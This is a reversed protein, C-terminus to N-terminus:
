AAAATVRARSKLAWANRLMALWIPQSIDHLGIALDAFRDVRGKMLGPRLVQVSGPPHGPEAGEVWLIIADGRSRVLAEISLIDHLHFGQDNKLVFIKEGDEMDEMLKRALYPLREEESLLLEDAAIAEPKIYTHYYMTYTADRGILGEDPHRPDIEIFHRGPAAIGEFGSRVGRVLKDVPLGALRLLGLPESGAM